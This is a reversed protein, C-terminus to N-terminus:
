ILDLKKWINYYYSRFSVQWYDAPYNSLLSRLAEFEAQFKSIQVFQVNWDSTLVNIGTKHGCYMSEHEPRVFMDIVLAKHKYDNYRPFWPGGSFNTLTYNGNGTPGTGWKRVPWPKYPGPSAVPAYWWEPRQTYSMRTAAGQLGFWYNGTDNYGTGANTQTPCYFVKGDNTEVQNSVIGAPVLLGMGCFFSSPPDNPQWVWLVYGLDARDTWTGLPLQDRNQNLYIQLYNAIQMLNAGCQVRRAHERARNLSPLLLSILVAIIGIVVLLEVLTFGRRGVCKVLPSSQRRM